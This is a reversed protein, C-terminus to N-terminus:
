YFDITQNLDIVIDELTAKYVDMGLCSIEFATKSLDANDAFSLVFNDMTGRKTNQTLNTVSYNDTFNIHFSQGELQDIYNAHIVCRSDRHIAKEYDVYLMLQEDPYSKRIVIGHGEKWDLFFFSHAKNYHPENLSLKAQIAQGSRKSQHYKVFVSPETAKVASTFVFAFVCLAALHRLM